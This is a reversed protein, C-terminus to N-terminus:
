DDTDDAEDFYDCEPCTWEAVTTAKFEDTGVIKNTLQRETLRMPEGCMPCDRDPM